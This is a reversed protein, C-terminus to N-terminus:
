YFRGKFTAKKIWSYVNKIPKSSFHKLALDLLEDHRDKVFGTKDSNDREHLEKLANYIKNLSQNSITVLTKETYIKM